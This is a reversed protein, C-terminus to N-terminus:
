PVVKMHNYIKEILKIFEDYPKARKLYNCVACCPLSNEKSYGISNEKRDIGNYIFPKRSHSTQLNKQAPPSGCYHCNGKVFIRFDEKSLSFELGKIRASSRYRSYLGNFSSETPDNLANPPTKGRSQQGLLNNRYCGCSRTKGTRILQPITEFEKGCYCKYRHYYCGDKRKRETKCVHM